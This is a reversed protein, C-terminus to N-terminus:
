RVDRRTVRNAIYSINSQCTRFALALAWQPFRDALRRIKRVTSPNQNTRM